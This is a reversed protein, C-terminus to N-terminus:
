VCNCEFSPGQCDSSSPTKASLATRGFRLCNINIRIKSSKRSRVVLAAVVSHPM